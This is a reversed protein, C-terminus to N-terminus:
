REYCFILITAYISKHDIKRVRVASHDFFLCPLYVFHCAYLTQIYIRVVRTQRDPNLQTKPIESAKVFRAIQAKPLLYIYIYIDFM